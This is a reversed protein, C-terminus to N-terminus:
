QQVGRPNQEGAEASMTNARINELGSLIAQLAAWTVLGATGTRTTDRIDSVPPFAKGPTSRSRYIKVLALLSRPPQILVKFRVMSVRLRM